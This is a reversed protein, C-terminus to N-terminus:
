FYGRRLRGSVADFNGFLRMVVVTIGNVAALGCVLRLSTVEWGRRLRLVNLLSLFVHQASPIGRGACCM